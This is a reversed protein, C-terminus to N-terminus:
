TFPNTTSVGSGVSSSKDQRVGDESGKSVTNDVVEPQVANQIKKRRKIEKVLEGHRKLLDLYSKMSVKSVDQESQQDMLRIMRQIKAVEYKMEDKPEYYYRSVKGKAM